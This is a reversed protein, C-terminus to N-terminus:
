TRSHLHLFAHSHWLTGISFHIDTDNYIVFKIMIMPNLFFYTQQLLIPVANKNETKIEFFDIFRIGINRDFSNPNM